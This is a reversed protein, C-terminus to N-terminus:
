REIIEFGVAKEIAEVAKLSDIKGESIYQKAKYGVTNKLGNSMKSVKEYLIDAEENFIDELENISIIDNYYRDVNLFQLIEIDEILIWNETFFRKAHNRMSILENLEMYVSEGFSDWTEKYGTQKKSVYVLKGPTANFVEVMTDLPIDTKSKPKLKSTSQKSEKPSRVNSLDDKTNLTPREETDINQSPTGKDQMAVPIDEETKKTRRTSTKTDAM